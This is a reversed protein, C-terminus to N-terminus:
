VFCSEKRIYRADVWGLRDVSVAFGHKHGRVGPGYRAIFPANRSVHTIVKGAPSARIALRLATTRYECWTESAPRPQQHQRPQAHAPTAALSITVAASTCVAATLIRNM